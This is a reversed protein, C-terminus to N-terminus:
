RRNNKVTIWSSILTWKEKMLYNGLYSFSNVQTIKIDIVIKSRVLYRGKFAM